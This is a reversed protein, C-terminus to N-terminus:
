RTSEAYTILAKRFQTYKRTSLYANYKEHFLHITSHDFHDIHQFNVIYSRHSQFFSPHQLKDIWYSLPHISSYTNNVTYIFVNRGAREVMIIDSLYVQYVGDKTEIPLRYTQLHYQQLADKLNRFLRHKDIPKSLYRFVHIRMADDLYEAYSTVIFLFTHPHEKIFKEGTYIGNPGPMEIDLFLLDCDRSDNLLDSGNDYSFIQPAPLSCKKFYEIIYKKLSEMFLLDDDCLLIRM